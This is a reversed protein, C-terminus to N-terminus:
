WIMRASPSASPDNLPQDRETLVPLLVLAGDKRWFSRLLCQESFLLSLTKNGNARKPLGSGASAPRAKKQM